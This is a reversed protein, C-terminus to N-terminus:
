HRARIGEFGFSPIYCTDASDMLQYYGNIANEEAYKLVRKYEIPKLKRNIDPPVGEIPTYQSMLSLLAFSKFNQNFYRLIRMSDDSHSPLILHRVIVGKKMVGNNDYETKPQQSIMEEIAAIATQRYHSVGSLRLALADDWYKFDPLYIDIVNNLLKLTSLSEYGGSNYVIPIKPRYLDLAQLIQRVFHTPTVLDINDAGQEELMKLIDALRSVSVTEGKGQASIEKNQCYVCKMVCGSFFVAGSGKNKSLAPEEWKHLYAKAAKIENTCRCAGLIRNRDVNCEHPCARCSDNKM